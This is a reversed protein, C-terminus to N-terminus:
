SDEFYLCSSQLGLPNQHRHAGGEDRLLGWTLLKNACAKIRLCSVHLVECPKACGVIYVLDITIAVTKKGFDEWNYGQYSSAPGHLQRASSASLDCQYPM